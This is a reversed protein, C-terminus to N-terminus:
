QQFVFINSVFFQFLIVFWFWFYSVLSIILYLEFELINVDKCGMLKRDRVFSGYKRRIEVLFRVRILLPDNRGGHLFTHSPLLLPRSVISPPLFDCSPSRPSIEICNSSELQSQKRAIPTIQLPSRRCGKGRSVDGSEPAQNDTSARPPQLVSGPILCLGCSIAIRSAAEPHNATATLRMELRQLRNVVRQKM